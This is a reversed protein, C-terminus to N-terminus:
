QSVVFISHSNNITHIEQSGTALDASAFFMITGQALAGKVHAISFERPALFNSECTAVSNEDTSLFECHTDTTAECNLLQATTDGFECLVEGFEDLESGPNVLVPVASEFVAEGELQLTFSFRKSRVRDLDNLVRVTMPYRDNEADIEQVSNDAISLYIWHDSLWGAESDDSPNTGLAYEQIANIYDQDTNSTADAANAPNLGHISEWADSLGDADADTLSSFGGQRVIDRRQMTQFVVQDSLRLTTTAVPIPDAIDYEVTSIETPAALMHKEYVVQSDAGNIEFSMSSQSGTATQPISVVGHSSHAIKGSLVSGANEDSVFQPCLDAATSNYRSAVVNQYLWSEQTSQNEIHMYSRMPRSADCSMGHALADVGSVMLVTRNGASPRIELNDYKFFRAKALDGGAEDSLAYTVTGKVSIEGFICRDYHVNVQRYNKGEHVLPESPEWTMPGGSYYSCYRIGSEEVAAVQFFPLPTGVYNNTEYTHGNAVIATTLDIPQGQAGVSLVGFLVADLFQAATNANLLAAENNGGKAIYTQYAQEAADAYPGFDGVPEQLEGVEIVPDIQNGFETVENDPEDTSGTTDGTDTAGDTNGGTVLEDTSDTTSGTTSSADTTGATVGASTGGDISGATSGSTDIDVTGTIGGTTLACNFCGGDAGQGSGNTDDGGTNNESGVSTTTGTEIVGEIQDTSVGDTSIGSPTDSGASAAGIQPSDNFSSGNGCASIILATSLILSYPAISFFQQHAM